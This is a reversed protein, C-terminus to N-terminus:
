DMEECHRMYVETFLTVCIWIIAMIWVLAPDIPGKLVFKLSIEILIRFKENVLICRFIEDAFPRGDQEPPHTLTDFLM